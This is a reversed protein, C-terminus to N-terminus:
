QAVKDTSGQSYKYKLVSGIIAMLLEVKAILWLSLQQKTGFPASLSEATPALLM